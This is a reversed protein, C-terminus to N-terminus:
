SSIYSSAAAAVDDVRDTVISTMYFDVAAASNFTVLSWPLVHSRTGLPEGSYDEDRLTLSEEHYTKTSILVTILQVGHAPFRPTGVVLMPRGKDSLPDTAWVIDGRELDDFATV